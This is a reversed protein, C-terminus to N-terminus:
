DTVGLATHSERIHATSLRGALDADGARIAAAIGEHQEVLRVRLAEWDPLSEEAALIRASVAERIAVTIDRVLRNDSMRAIALHFATDLENFAEASTWPRMLTLLNDLEALGAPDRRTAAAEASARELVVRTETLERFSVSDLAVHLKLMRGFADGAASAVRTGGTAGPRTVVVGQAHLVKIAERVASRSAGLRASLERENPLRTGPTARGALIEGTLHDLVAEFGGPTTMTGM